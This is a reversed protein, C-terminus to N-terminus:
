AEPRTLIWTGSILAIPIPALSWPFPAILLSIAISIAFGIMAAKKGSRSIARSNRWALIHPGARPHEVLWRELAPNSKAFCFAALILFPVSPLLPVVVGVAGLGTFFFGALLYLARIM